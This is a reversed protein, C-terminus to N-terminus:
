ELSRGLIVLITTAVLFIGHFYVGIPIKKKYSVGIVIAKFFDIIIALYMGAYNFDSSENNDRIFPASVDRWLGVAIIFTVIALIYYM